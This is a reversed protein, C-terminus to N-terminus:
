FFYAWSYATFLLLSWLGGEGGGLMVAPITDFFEVCMHQKSKLASWPLNIALGHKSPFYYILQCLTESINMIMNTMYNRKIETM